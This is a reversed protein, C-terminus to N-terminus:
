AGAHRSVRHRWLPDIPGFAVPIVLVEAAQERQHPIFTEHKIPDYHSDASSVPDVPFPYLKAYLGFDRSM